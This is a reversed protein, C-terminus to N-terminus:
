TTGEAFYCHITGWVVPKMEDVTRLNAVLHEDSVDELGFIETISDISVLRLGDNRLSNSITSLV